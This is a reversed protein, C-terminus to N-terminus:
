KINKDKLFPYQQRISEIKSLDIKIFGIMRHPPLRLFIKGWPDFAVSDGVYHLAEKKGLRNVGVVYCQNEIARAKLLTLWHDRRAAPWQACVILCKIKKLPLKRILEPFRIDYCIICAVPGFWTQFPKIVHGASFIKTEGGLSFLHIKRYTGRIRGNREILYATNFYRNGSKELQSFFCGIKNSRCWRQLDVLVQNYFVSWEQRTSRKQPGGLWMEPLVIYQPKKRKAKELLSLVLPFTKGPNRDIPYQLLGFLVQDLSHSM